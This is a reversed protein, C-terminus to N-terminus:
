LLTSFDIQTNTFYLQESHSIKTSLEFELRTPSLGKHAFVGQFTM